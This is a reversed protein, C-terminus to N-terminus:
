IIRNSELIRSLAFSSMDWSGAARTCHVEHGSFLMRSRSRRAKWAKNWHMERSDLLPHRLYLNLATAHRSLLPQFEEVVPLLMCEAASVWSQSQQHRTKLGLKRACAAVRVVQIEVILIVYSRRTSPHCQLFRAQWYIGQHGIHHGLVHIHISRPRSRTEIM